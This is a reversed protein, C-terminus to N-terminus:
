AAVILREKLEKETWVQSMTIRLANECLQKFVELLPPYFTWTWVSQSKWDISHLTPLFEKFDPEDLAVPFIKGEYLMPRYKIMRLTQYYDSYFELLKQLEKGKLPQNRRFGRSQSKTDLILKYAQLQIVQSFKFYKEKKDLSNESLGSVIKKKELAKIQEISLGTVQYIEKRTWLYDTNFKVERGDPFTLSIEGPQAVRHVKEGRGLAQEALKENQINVWNDKHKQYIVTSGDPITEIFEPNDVLFDLHSFFSNLNASGLRSKESNSLNLNMANDRM